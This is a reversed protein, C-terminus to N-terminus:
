IYLYLSYAHGMVKTPSVFFRSPLSLEKWKRFQYPKSAAWFNAREFFGGFWWSFVGCDLEFSLLSSNSSVTVSWVGEVDYAPLFCSLYLSSMFKRKCLFFGSCGTKDTYSDDPPQSIYLYHYRRRLTWRNWVKLRYDTWEVLRHGLYIVLYIIDWVSTSM